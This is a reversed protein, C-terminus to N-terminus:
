AVRCLSATTSNYDGWIRCVLDPHDIFPNRNGQLDEAGDNRNIERQQVPYSLHWKILDSLKGMTNNNQNDNTKDVLSLRSDAVVCYFIIRAADGRYSELGFNTAAPDWGDHDDNMGEVYFSNGRNGNESTLTPRPMHIDSDVFGGGRSSPWVHERNLGSNVSKGSYFSLLKNPNNPDYDTKYFASSRNSGNNILMSGYGVTTRRKQRNLNRLNNLLTNGTTDLNTSNYYTGEYTSEGGGGGSFEKVNVEIINSTVGSGDTAFAQISTTGESLANLLGDDDITAVNTNSSSWTLVKNSAGMPYITANFQIQEGVYPNSDGSITIKSVLLQGGNAIVNLEFPSSSVNSGDTATAIINTSGEKLALVTGDQAISAVNANSSPWTVEKKSAEAPLVNAVMKASSGVQLSTPGSVSIQEVLVDDRGKRVYIDFSESRIKTGDKAIAYVSTTGHSLATFLGDEDISGVNANSSVWEVDKITANSPYVLAEFHLNEGIDVDSWQEQKNVDINTVDILSGSSVINVLAESYFSSQTEYNVSTAYVHVSGPLLATLSGDENLTAFNEEGSGLAYYIDGIEANSPKTLIDFSFTDGVEISVEGPSLAFGQLTTNEGPTACGSVLATLLFSLIAIRRNNKM